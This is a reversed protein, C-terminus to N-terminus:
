QVTSVGAAIRGQNDRVIETTRPAAIAQIVAQNGQAQQQAIQQFGQLMMQAFQAMIREMPSPGEDQLENDSM